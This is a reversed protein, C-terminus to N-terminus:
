RKKFLKATFADLDDTDDPVEVVAANNGKNQPPPPPAASVRPRAITKEAEATAFKSEIRGLAITAKTAGSNVIKRAEDKNQSLYYLVDTGYEMSMITSALYDGYAQDLDSFANVFDQGAEEFDPYREKAPGLKEEWQASLEAKMNQIELQEAAQKAKAEYQARDRQNEFRVLDRIYEPDFEGLSYKETGDENLDTPTPGSEDAKPEPTPPTNKALLEDLKAQLAEAKREAERQKGVVEDIREQVRNKKKPPEASIEEEEDESADEDVPEKENTDEVHTPELADTDEDDVKDEPASAPAEKTSSQGFLEESFTDLDDSISVEVPTNDSM